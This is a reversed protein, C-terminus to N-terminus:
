SLSFFLSFVRVVTPYTGVPFRRFALLASIQEIARARFLFCVLVAVSPCASRPIQSAVVARPLFSLAYPHASSIEHVAWPKKGSRGRVEM